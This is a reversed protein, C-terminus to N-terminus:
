ATPKHWMQNFHTANKENQHLGAQLGRDKLQLVVRAAIEKKLWFNVFNAEAEVQPNLTLPNRSLRYEIEDYVVKEEATLDTVSFERYQSDSLLIKLLTPSNVQTTFESISDTFVTNVVRELDNWDRDDLNEPPHLRRSIPHPTLAFPVLNWSSQM